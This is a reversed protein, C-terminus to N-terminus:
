LCVYASEITSTNLCRINVLINSKIGSEYLLGCNNFIEKKTINYNIDNGIEITDNPFKEYNYYWQWTRIIDCIEFINYNYDVDLKSVNFKCYKKCYNLYKENLADCKLENELINSITYPRKVAIFQDTLFQRKALFDYIIKNEYKPFEKQNDIIIYYLEQYEDFYNKQFKSLVKNFIDVENIFRIFDDKFLYREMSLSYVYQNLINLKSIDIIPAYEITCRFWNVNPNSKMSNISAQIESIRFIESGNNPINNFVILDEIRPQQITFIVIDSNTIFKQGFMDQENASSNVIPTINFLPTYDYIDYNIGSNYRDFSSKTVTEYTSSNVNINYYRCFISNRNLNKYNIVQTLYESYLKEVYPTEHLVNEFM